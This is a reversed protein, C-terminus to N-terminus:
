EVPEPEQSSQSRRNQEIRERIRALEAADFVEGRKVRDLLDPVLRLLLNFTDRAEPRLPGSFPALHPYGVAKLVQRVQVTEFLFGDSGVTPPYKRWTVAPAGTTFMAMLDKRCDTCLLPAFAQANVVLYTMRASPTPNGCKRGDPFTRICSGFTEM